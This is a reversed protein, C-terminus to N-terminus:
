FLYFPMKKRLLLIFPWFILSLVVANNNLTTLPDFSYIGWLSQGTVNAYLTALVIVGFGIVGSSGGTKILNPSDMKAFFLTGGGHYAIRSEIYETAISFLRVGLFWYNGVV